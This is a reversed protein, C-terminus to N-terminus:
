FVYGVRVRLSLEGGAYDFAADSFSPPGFSGRADNSAGLGETPIGFLGTDVRGDADADHHVSLAYRGAPVDSFVCQGQHGSIRGGSAAYARARTRPFAEADAAAFLLCSLRGEDGRLETGRVVIRSGSADQSAAPLAVLALLSASFAVSLPSLATRVRM